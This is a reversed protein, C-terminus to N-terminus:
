QALKRASGPKRANPNATHAEIVKKTAQTNEADSAARAAKVKVLTEPAMYRSVIGFEEDTMKTFAAFADKHEPAAAARVRGEGLTVVYGDIRAVTSAANVSGVAWIWTANGNPRVVKYPKWVYEDKSNKADAGDPRNQECEERTAYEVIKVVKRPTKQEGNGEHTSTTSETATSNAM